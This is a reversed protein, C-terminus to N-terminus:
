MEPYLTPGWYLNTTYLSYILTIRAQVYISTYGALTSPESKTLVSLTKGMVKGTYIALLHGTLMVSSASHNNWKFCFSQKVDKQKLGPLWQLWQGNQLFWLCFTGPKIIRWTFKPNSNREPGTVICEPSAPFHCCVVAGVKGKARSPFPLVKCHATSSCCAARSTPQMRRMTVEQYKWIKTAKDDDLVVTLQPSRHKLHWRALTRLWLLFLSRLGQLMICSFWKYNLEGSVSRSVLVPHVHSKPLVWSAHNLPASPFFGACTVNVSSHQSTVQLRTESPATCLRGQLQKSCLM